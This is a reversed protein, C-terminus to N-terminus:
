HGNLPIVSKLFFILYFIIQFIFQSKYKNIKTTFRLMQQEQLSWMQWM